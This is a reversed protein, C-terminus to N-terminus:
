GHELVALLHAANRKAMPGTFHKIILSKQYDDSHPDLNVAVIIVETFGSGKYCPHTPGIRLQSINVDRVMVSDIM